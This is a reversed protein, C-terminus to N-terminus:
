GTLDRVTIWLGLTSTLCVEEATFDLDEKDIWFDGTAAVFTGLEKLFRLVQGLM